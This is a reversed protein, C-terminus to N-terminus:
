MVRAILTVCDVPVAAVKVKPECTKKTRDEEDLYRIRLERKVPYIATVEGCRTLPGTFLHNFEVEDGIEVAHVEDGAYFIERRM